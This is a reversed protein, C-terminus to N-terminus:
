RNCDLYLECATAEDFIVILRVSSLLTPNSTKLTTVIFFETKQSIFVGALHGSVSCGGGEGESNDRNYGM